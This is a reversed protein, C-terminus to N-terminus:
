NSRPTRPRRPKTSPPVAPEAQPDAEHEETNGGIIEPPDIEAILENQDDSERVVEFGRGLWMPLSLSNVVAPKEIDPNKILAWM